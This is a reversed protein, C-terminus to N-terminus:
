LGRLVRGALWGLQRCAGDWGMLGRWFECVVSPILAVTRGPRMSASPLSGEALSGM